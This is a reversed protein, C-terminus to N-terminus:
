KRHAKSLTQSINRWRRSQRAGQYESEYAVWALLDGVKSM